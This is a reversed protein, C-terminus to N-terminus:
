GKVVNKAPGDKLADRLYTLKDVKGLHPKDHVAAQFQEWFLRCNLINGGLKSIEIRPLSMGVMM